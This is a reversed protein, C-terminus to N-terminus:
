FFGLVAGVLAAALLGLTAIASLGFGPGRSRANRSYSLVYIVRGLPWLLGFIATWISHFLIYCFWLAPLFLVLQELTNQQARFVRNFADPGSVAPAEVGYRNRARAVRIGSWFYVALALISVLVTAHLVFPM